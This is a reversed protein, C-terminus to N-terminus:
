GLASSRPRSADGMERSGSQQPKLINDLVRRAQRAHQAASALLHTNGSESVALNYHLCGAALSDPYTTLLKQIFEDIVAKDVLGETELLPVYKDLRDFVLKKGEDSVMGTAEDKWYNRSDVDRGMLDNLPGNMNMIVFSSAGSELVQKADDIRVPFYSYLAQPAIRHDFAMQRFKSRLQCLRLADGQGLDVLEKEGRCYAMYKRWEEDPVNVGYPRYMIQDMLSFATPFHQQHPVAFDWVRVEFPISLVNVDDAKATIAGKYLGPKQDPQSRVDLWVPQWVEEDLTFSKLFSLLPDPHWGVFPVPYYPKKTNVYGVPSVEVQSSAIKDGKENTLDSVTVQVNKRLANRSRLVVQVGEAENAALELRVTGGIEGVFPLENRYVKTTGDTWGYGWEYPKVRKNFAAIPVRNELDRLTDSVVRANSRWLMYENPSKLKKGDGALALISDKIKTLEPALADVNGQKIRRDARDLKDELQTLTESVPATELRLSDLFLTYSHMPEFYLLRLMTVRRSRAVDDLRLRLTQKGPAVIVEGSKDWLPADPGQSWVVSDDRVGESTALLCLPVHYDNPNFVDIVLYDYPTWDQVPIDKGLLMATPYTGSVGQCAFRVSQKGSTAHESSPEFVPPTSGVIKCFQVDQDGVLQWKAIEAPTDFDSLKATWVNSNAAVPVNAAAFLGLLGIVLVTNAKKMLSM